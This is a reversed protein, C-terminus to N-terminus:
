EYGEQVAQEALRTMDAEAKVGATTARLASDFSDQWTTERVPRSSANRRLAEPDAPRWERNITSRNENAVPAPEGTRESAPQRAAQVEAAVTANLNKAALEIGKEWSVGKYAQQRAATDIRQQHRSLGAQAHELVDDEAIHGQEALNAAVDVWPLATELDVGTEELFTDVALEHADREAIAADVEAEIASDEAHGTAKELWADTSAAAAEIQEDTASHMNAGQAALMSNLVLGIIDANPDESELDPVADDYDNDLPRLYQTGDEGEEVVHFNGAEDAYVGPLDTEFFQPDGAM